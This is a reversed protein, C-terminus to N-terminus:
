GGAWHGQEANGKGVLNLYDSITHNAYAGPGKSEPLASELDYLRSVVSFAKL